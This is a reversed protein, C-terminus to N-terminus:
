PNLKRSYVIRSRGPGAYGVVKEHSFGLAEHFRVAGEDGVPSIAKLAEAGAQACRDAFTEYLQQGVGQRRHDPHIGVLHIYGVRLGAQSKTALFGLLFGALDGQREAVLASDGLEYFFHPDARQGGPGGWWRDMVSTIYDFDAKNMERITTTDTM